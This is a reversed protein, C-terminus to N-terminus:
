AMDSDSHLRFSLQSDLWEGMCETVWEVLRYPPADGILSANEIKHEELIQFALGYHSLPTWKVEKKDGEGEELRILRRLDNNNQDARAEAEADNSASWLRYHPLTMVEPFKLYGPWRKFPSVAKGTDDVLRVKPKPKTAVEDSM